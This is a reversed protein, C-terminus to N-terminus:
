GEDMIHIGIVDGNNSIFNSLKINGYLEVNGSGYGYNNIISIGRIDTGMFGEKNLSKPQAGNNPGDYSGCALSGLPSENFLDYIYVDKIFVNEIHDLRIGILGKNTHFMADANCAFRACSPLSNYDSSPNISTTAWQIFTNNGRSPDDTSQYGWTREHINDFSFITLAIQADSLPNGYYILDDYSYFGKDIYDWKEHPLTRRIDFLDGFRGFIPTVSTTGDRNKFFGECRDFYVGPLENMNIQLGHIKVNEIYLDQGSYYNKNPSDGFGQTALGKSNFIMGYVASGDPLEFENEFM